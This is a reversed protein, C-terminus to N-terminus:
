WIILICMNKSLSLPPTTQFINQPFFIMWGVHKFTVQIQIHSMKFIYDLRILYPKFQVV